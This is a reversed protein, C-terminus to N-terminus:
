HTVRQEGTLHNILGIYEFLTKHANPNSLKLAASADTFRKVQADHDALLHELLVTDRPTADLNFKKKKTELAELLEYHRQKTTQMANYAQWADGADADLVEGPRYLADGGDESNSKTV